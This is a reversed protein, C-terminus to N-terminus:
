LRPISDVAKKRGQDLVTAYVQTTTVNRHRSSLAALIRKEMEELDKKTAIEEINM